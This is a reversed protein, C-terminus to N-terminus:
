IACGGGEGEQYHLCGIQESEGRLHVVERSDTFVVLIKTSCYIKIQMRWVITGLQLELTSIGIRTPCKIELLFYKGCEKRYCVGDPSAGIPLLGGPVSVVINTHKLSYRLQGAGCCCPTGRLWYNSSTLLIPKKDCTPLMM